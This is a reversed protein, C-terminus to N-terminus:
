DIYLAYKNQKHYEDFLYLEFRETKLHTSFTVSAQLTTMNLFIKSM